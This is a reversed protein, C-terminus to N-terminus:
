TRLSLILVEFLKASQDLKKKLPYIKPVNCSFRFFKRNENWRTIVLADHSVGLSVFNESKHIIDNSDGRRIFFRKTLQIQQLNHTVKTSRKPIPM